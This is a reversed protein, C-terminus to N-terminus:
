SAMQEKGETGDEPEWAQTWTPGTGLDCISILEYKMSLFASGLLGVQCTGSTLSLWAAAASPNGMDSVVLPQWTLRSRSLVLTSDPLMSTFSYQLRQKIFTMILTGRCGSLPKRMMASYCTGPATSKIWCLSWWLVGSNLAPNRVEEDSTTESLCGRHTSLQKVVDRARGNCTTITLSALVTM